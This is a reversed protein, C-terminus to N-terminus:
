SHNKNGKPKRVLVKYVKREQGMRVVRGAWGMLKSKIQTIINPSSYLIHLEKSHLKRWKGRMKDRSSGFIRRLVSNEFARLRPEERLM